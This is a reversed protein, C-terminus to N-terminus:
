SRYPKERRACPLNGSAYLGTGKAYFSFLDDTQCSLMDSETPDIVGNNNEDLGHDDYKWAQKTLLVTRSKSVNSASSKKCSIMAAVSLAGFVFLAITTIKM